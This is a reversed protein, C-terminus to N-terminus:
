ALSASLSWRCLRRRQNRFARLAQRSVAVFPETLRLDEGEPADARAVLEIADARGCWRCTVEEVAEEVVETEEVRHEGALDFHWFETTRRTGADRRVPDPQRLRRLALAPDDDPIQSTSEM